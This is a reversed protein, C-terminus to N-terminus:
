SDFSPMWRPRRVAILKSVDVTTAAVVIAGEVNRRGVPFCIALEYIFAVIQIPRGASAFDGKQAVVTVETIFYPGDLGVPGPFRAYGRMGGVAGQSNFHAPTINRIQVKRGIASSENRILVHEARDVVDIAADKNKVSISCTDVRQIEFDNVTIMIIHIIRFPRRIPLRDGEDLTLIM